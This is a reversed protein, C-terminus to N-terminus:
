FADKSIPVLDIALFNTSIESNLAVTIAPPPSVADANLCKLITSLTVCTEVPPPADSSNIDPFLSSAILM